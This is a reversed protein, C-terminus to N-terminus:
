ALCRSFSSVVQEYNLSSSLSTPLIYPLPTDFETINHDGLTTKGEDIMQSLTRFSPQTYQAIVKDATDSVIFTLRISNLLNYM